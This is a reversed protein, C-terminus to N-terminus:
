YQQRRLADAAKRLYMAAKEDMQSAYKLKSRYKYVADDAYNAYRRASDLNGKKTYYAAEHQYREAKKLYYEAERRYGEAKNQYYEAERQHGQAKRLYYDNQASAVLTFVLLFLVSVFTDRVVMHQMM